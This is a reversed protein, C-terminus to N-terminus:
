PIPIPTIGVKAIRATGVGQLDFTLQTLNLVRTGLSRTTLGSETGFGGRQEGNTALIWGAVAKTSGSAAEARYLGADNATVHGAVDFVRGDALSLTGTMDADTLQLRLRGAAQSVDITHGDSTGNWWAQLTPSTGVPDAPVGDCVYAEVRSGDVVVAVLAATGKVTGVYTHSAPPTASGGSNCAFAVSLLLGAAVAGPRALHFNM